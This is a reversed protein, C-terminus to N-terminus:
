SDLRSRRVLRMGNSHILRTIEAPSLSDDPRRVFVLALPPFPAHERMCVAITGGRKVDQALALGQVGHSASDWGPTGADAVRARYSLVAALGALFVVAWLALRLM